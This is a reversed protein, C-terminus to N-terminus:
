LPTAVHASTCAAPFHITKRGRRECQTRIRGALVALAAVGRGLRQARAAPLSPRHARHRTLRISSMPRAPFRRRRAAASHAGGCRLPVASRIHLRPQSQALAARPTDGPQDSAGGFVGRTRLAPALRGRIRQAKTPEQACRAPRPRRPLNYCCCLICFLKFRAATTHLGHSAVPVPVTRSVVSVALM